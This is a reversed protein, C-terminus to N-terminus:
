VAAQVKHNEMAELCGSGMVAVDFVRAGWFQNRLPLVVLRVRQTSFDAHGSNGSASAALSLVIRWAHVAV